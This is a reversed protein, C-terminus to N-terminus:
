DGLAKVRRAVERGLELCADIEAGTPMYKVELPDLVDLGLGRLEADM